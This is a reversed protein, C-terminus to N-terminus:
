QTPTPNSVPRRRLRNYINSIFRTIRYVRSVIRLDLNEWNTDVTILLRCKKYPGEDSTITVKVEYQGAPFSDEITFNTIFIPAPPPNSFRASDIRLRSLTSICAYRPPNLLEGNVDRAGGLNTDSFVVHLMQSSHGQINRNEELDTLNDNRGWVLLKPYKSPYRMEDANRPIIPTIEAQCNHLMRHGTNHVRIKLYRQSYNGLTRQIAFASSELRLKPRFFPSYHKFYYSYDSFGWAGSYFNDSPRDISIWAEVVWSNISALNQLTTFDLLM